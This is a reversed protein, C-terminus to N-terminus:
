HLAHPTAGASIPDEPAHTYDAAGLDKDGFVDFIHAELQSQEARLELRKRAVMNRVDKSSVDVPLEVSDEGVNPEFIDLDM